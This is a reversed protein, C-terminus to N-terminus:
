HGRSIYDYRRRSTSSSGTWAEGLPSAAFARGRCTTLPGHLMIVRPCVPVRAWSVGQNQVLKGALLLSDMMGAPTNDRAHVVPLHRFRGDCMIRLAELCTTGVPVAKPNATMIASMPLAHPDPLEVKGRAATGDGDKGHPSVGPALIRRVVDRETVIGTLVGSAPDVAVMASARTAAMIEVVEQVCATGWAQYVVGAAATELSTPAAM